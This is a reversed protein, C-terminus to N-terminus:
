FKLYNIKKNARKAFHYTNSPCKDDSEVLDVIELEHKNNQKWCCSSTKYAFVVGNNFLITQQVTKDKYLKLAYNKIGAIELFVEDATTIATIDNTKLALAISSIVHAETKTQLFSFVDKNEKSNLTNLVAVRDAIELKLFKPKSKLSDIYSVSIAQNQNTKAKSFAKYTTKNFDLVSVNVKIPTQYKPLATHNYDQELVFNKQEGVTGLQINQTTTKQYDQAIVITKCSIFCTSVLVILIYKNM